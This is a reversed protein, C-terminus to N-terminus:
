GSFINRFTEVLVTRDTLLAVTSACILLLGGIVLGVGRGNPAVQCERLSDRIALDLQRWGSISQWDGVPSLRVNRLPRFSSIHMEIGLSPLSVTNGAWRAEAQLLKLSQALVPRFEDLSINYVVLSPRSMLIVLTLTLVYLVALMPWVLFQYTAVATEPLLLELPGIIVFGGIALGLATTDQSGTILFPRRSLNMGGIFLAYLALPIVAVSMRFPDHM